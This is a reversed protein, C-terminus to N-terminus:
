FAIRFDTYRSNVPVQEVRRERVHGPFEADIEDLCLDLDEARGQALMEVTGDPLNRVYGTVGWRDAIGQVTYRFGVGQVHGIFVIQRAIQETRM